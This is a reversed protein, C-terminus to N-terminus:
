PKKLCSQKIKQMLKHDITEPFCSITSLDFWGYTTHEFNLKPIVLNKSRHIFVHFIYNPNDLSFARSIDKPLLNIKSEEKLERLVCESPSENKDPSGAFISWYGPFKIPKGSKPCKKIRKCLLISKGCLIAVGATFPKSIKTRNNTM